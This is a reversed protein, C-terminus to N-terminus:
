LAEISFAMKEELINEKGLLEYLEMGHQTIEKALDKTKRKDFKSPLSFDGVQDGEESTLESGRYLLNVIEM